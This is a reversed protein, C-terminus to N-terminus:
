KSINESFKRVDEDRWATCRASLKVPQPFKGDKVWQFITSKSVPINELVQKLRLLKM